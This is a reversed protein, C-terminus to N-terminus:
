SGWKVWTVFLTTRRPACAPMATVSDIRREFAPKLMTAVPAVTVISPKTKSSFVASEDTPTVGAGAEGVDARRDRHLV